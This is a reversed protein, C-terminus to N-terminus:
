APTIEQRAREEELLVRRLIKGVMSKPLETRFEVVKPRKYAALREACFQLIEEETASEDSRLVVYAKTTEGRYDDPVGAV